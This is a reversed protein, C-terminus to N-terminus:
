IDVFKISTLATKGIPPLEMLRRVIGAQRHLLPHDGFRLIARRIIRMTPGIGIQEAPV